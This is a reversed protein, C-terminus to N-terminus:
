GSNIQLLYIYDCLLFAVIVFAFIYVAMKLRDSLKLASLHKKRHQALEPSTLLDYSFAEADEKFCRKFKRVMSIEYSELIGEDADKMLIFLKADSMSFHLYKENSNKLYKHVIKSISQNHERLSNTFVRFSRRKGIIVFLVILMIDKLLFPIEFPFWSTLFDFIPHLWLHWYTSITHIVLLAFSFLEDLGILSAKAIIYIGFQKWSNLDNLINILGMVSLLSSLLGIVKRVILKFLSIKNKNSM